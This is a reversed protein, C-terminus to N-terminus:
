KSRYDLLWSIFATIFCFASSLRSLPVQVMLFFLLASTNQVLKVQMRADKENLHACNTDLFTEFKANLYSILEGISQGKINQEEFHIVIQESESV